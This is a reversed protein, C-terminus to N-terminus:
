ILPITNGNVTVYDAWDVDQVTRVTFGLSMDLAFSNVWVNDRLQPNRRLDSVRRPALNNRLYIERMATNNKFQSHILSSLNASNSGFFHLQVLTEYSQAAYEKAKGKVFESMGSKSASGQRTMNLISVSVYNTKPEPGNQNSVIALCDANLLVFSKQLSTIVSKELEGYIDM